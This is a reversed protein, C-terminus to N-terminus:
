FFRKNNYNSASQDDYIRHIENEKNFENYNTNRQKNYNLPIVALEKNLIIIQKESKLLNNKLTTNEQELNYKESKIEDNQNLLIEKQKKLSFSNKM